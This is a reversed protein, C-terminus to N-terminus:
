QPFTNAEAVKVVGFIYRRLSSKEGLLKYCQAEGSAGLAREPYGYDELASVWSTWTGTARSSAGFTRARTELWSLRDM